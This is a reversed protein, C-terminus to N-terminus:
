RMWIFSSSNTLWRLYRRCWVTKEKEQQSSLSSPYSDRRSRWIVFGYFTIQVQANTAASSTEVLNKKTMCKKEKKSSFYQKYSSGYKVGDRRIRVHQHRYTVSGFGFSNLMVLTAIQMPKLATGSGARYRLASRSRPLWVLASGSGALSRRWLFRFKLM